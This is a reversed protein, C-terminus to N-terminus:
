RRLHSGFRVNRLSGGGGGGLFFVTIKANFQYFLAYELKFDITSPFTHLFFSDM